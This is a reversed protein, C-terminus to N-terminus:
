AAVATFIEPPSLPMDAAILTTMGHHTPYRSLHLRSMPIKIKANVLNIHRAALRGFARPNAM